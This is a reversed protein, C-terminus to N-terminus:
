FYVPTITLVQLFSWEKASNATIQVVGWARCLCAERVEPIMAVERWQSCVAKPIHLV